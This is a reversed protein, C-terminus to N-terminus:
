DRVKLDFVFGDHDTRLRNQPIIEFDLVEVRDNAFLYDLRHAILAEAGAEQFAREVFNPGQAGRSVQENMDGIDVCARKEANAARMKAAYSKVHHRHGKPVEHDSFLRHGAYTWCHDVGIEFDVDPNQTFKFRARTMRRVPHWKDRTGDDLWRQQSLLTNEGWTKKLDARRAILITGSKVVLHQDRPAIGTFSFREHPYMELLRRQAPRRGVEALATFDPHYRERAWTLGGQRISQGAHTNIYLGRVRM